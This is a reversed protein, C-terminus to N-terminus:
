PLVRNSLSQTGGSPMTLSQTSPEVTSCDQCLRRRLEISPNRESVTDVAAVVHMESLLSDSRLDLPDFWSRRSENKKIVLNLLRRVAPCRCKPIPELDPTGKDIVSEEVVTLSQWRVNAALLIKM